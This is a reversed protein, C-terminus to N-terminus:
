RGNEPILSNVTWITGAITITGGRVFNGTGWESALLVPLFGYKKFTNPATGVTRVLRVGRPRLGFSNNSKGVIVSEAQDANGAPAAGAAAYRTEEVRITYIDGNNAEYKGGEFFAM